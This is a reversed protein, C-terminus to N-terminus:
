LSSKLPEIIMANNFVDRPLLPEMDENARGFKVQPIVRAEPSIIVNIITPEESASLMNLVPDIKEMSRIEVYSFGFSKAVNEYEPFSIDSASSAIYKAGLWQEQTQKIMSYGGNNILFLKLPLGHHRATALEQMTMMFSGDGVVCFHPTSRFAMMSGIAAPLAWGMATNNFDHYVEHREDFKAGQM